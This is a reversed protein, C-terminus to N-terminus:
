ALSVVLPLTQMENEGAMEIDLMVFRNIVVNEMVFEHVGDDVEIWSSVPSKVPGKKNMLSEARDADRPIKCAWILTGWFVM